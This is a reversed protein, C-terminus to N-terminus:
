DKNCRKFQSSGTVSKKTEAKLQRIENTIQSLSRAVTDAM